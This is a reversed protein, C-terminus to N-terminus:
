IRFYFVDWFLWFFDKLFVFLYILIVFVILNVYVFISFKVNFIENSLELFLCIKLIFLVIKNIQIGVKEFLGEELWIMVYFLEQFIVKIDLMNLVDIINVIQMLNMMGYDFFVIINVDDNFGNLM